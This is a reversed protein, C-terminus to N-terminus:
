PQCQHHSLSVYETMTCKRSHFQIRKNMGGVKEAMSEKKSDSIGDHNGCLRASKRDNSGGLKVGTRDDTVHNSFLRSNIKAGAVHIGGAQWRTQCRILWKGILRKKSDSIGDHNGCLRASKRDDNGGLKVGTREDIAHNSCLRISLKEGAM